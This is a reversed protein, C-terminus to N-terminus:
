NPTIYMEHHEKLAALVHIILIKYQQPLTMLLFSRLFLLYPVNM